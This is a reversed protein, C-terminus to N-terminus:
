DIFNYNNQQTGDTYLWSIYDQNSANPEFIGIWDSGYSDLGSFNVEIHEGVLFSDKNTYFYIESYLFSILLFIYITRMM